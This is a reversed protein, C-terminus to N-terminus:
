KKSFEMSTVIGERGARQVALALGELDGEERLTVAALLMPLNVGTVVRLNRSLGARMAANFPTGGVMDVLVLAGKGEADVRGLAEALRKEFAELPDEPNLALAGAAEPEGLVMRVSALLRAGFEGHTAVLVGIV